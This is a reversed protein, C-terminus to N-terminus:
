SGHGGRNLERGCYPCYKFRNEEPGDNEFVFTKHCGTEYANMEIDYIEWKCFREGREEPLDKEVM